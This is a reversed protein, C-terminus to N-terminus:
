DSRLDLPGNNSTSCCDTEPCSVLCVCRSVQQSPSSEPCVAKVLRMPAPSRVAKCRGTTAQHQNHRFLTKSPGQLEHLDREAQMFPNNLAESKRMTLERM